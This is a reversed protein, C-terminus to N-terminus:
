IFTLSVSKAKDKILEKKTRKKREKNKKTKTNKRKELFDGLRAEYVWSIFLKFQYVVKLLCYKQLSNLL